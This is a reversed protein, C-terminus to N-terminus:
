QVPSLLYTEPIGARAIFGYLPENPLGEQLIHRSAILKALDVGTAYGMSELMFVLDETVVNGTAGPAHPCGGLGALSADFERIGHELAVLTNPLGMGRTDHFHMSTFKPGAIEKVDEIVQGVQLPTAHGTTDALAIVDAGADLCKRVIDCVARVTVVGQLTCGFVTSLGAILKVSSNERDLCTRIRSFEAVMDDPTRRVNALSHAMSVSIPAVIRDAGAAVANVAGKENPVLATVALDAYRKAYAVVMAADAMQPLLKPPVFSAIEMHRIGSQYAADIWRIKNETSMTQAVSQLGDRLGVEQVIVRPNAQIM